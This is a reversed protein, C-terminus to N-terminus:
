PRRVRKGDCLGKDLESVSKAWLATMDRARQGGAREAAEGREKVSAHLSDNWGAHDLTDMVSDPEDGETMDWAGCAPIDGVSALGAAVHQYLSCDVRLVASCAAIMAVHADPGHACRISAPSCERRLQRTLPVLASACREWISLRWEREATTADRWATVAKVAAMLSEQEHLSAGWLQEPHQAAEADRMQAEVSAASSCAFLSERPDRQVRQSLFAGTKWWKALRLRSDPAAAGGVLCTQLLAVVVSFRADAHVIQEARRVAASWEPSGRVSATM